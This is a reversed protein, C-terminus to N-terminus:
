DLMAGLSRNFLHPQHLQGALVIHHLVAVNEVHSEVHLLRRPSTMQVPTNAVESKVPFPEVWLNNRDHRHLESPSLMRSM